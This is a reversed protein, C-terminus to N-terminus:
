AHSLVNTATLRRRLDYAVQKHQRRKEYDGLRIAVPSSMARANSFTSVAQSAFVDASPTAAPITPASHQTVKSETEVSAQVSKATSEHKIFAVGALILFLGVTKLFTMPQAKLGFFGFNDIAVSVIMQGALGLFLVKVVGIRPVLFIASTIFISGCIGGLLYQPPVRTIKGFAPVGERTVLLLLGLIAAGVCFSIFSAQIPSGLYNSLQANLASQSAALGGALFMVLLLFGTMSLMNMWEM